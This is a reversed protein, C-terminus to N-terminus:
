EKDVLKQYFSRVAKKAKRRIGYIGGHNGYVVRVVMIRIRPREEIAKLLRALTPNRERM